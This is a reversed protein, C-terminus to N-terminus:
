TASRRCGRIEQLTLTAKTEPGGSRLRDRLAVQHAHIAKYEKTMRAAVDPHRDLMNVTEGPDAQVDFLEFPRARKAFVLSWRPGRLKERAGAMYVANRGPYRGAIMPLLSRGEVEPNPRVGVLQLLTPMLDLTSVLGSERRGGGRNGPVKLLLPVHAVEEFNQHHLFLGHELFEEGHDSTVM